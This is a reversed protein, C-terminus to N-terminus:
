GEVVTSTPYLLKDRHISSAFNPKELVTRRCDFELDSTMRRICALCSFTSGDAQRPSAPAACARGEPFHECPSSFPPHVSFVRSGDPSAARHAAEAESRREARTMGAPTATPTELFSFDASHELWRRLEVRDVAGGAARKLTAVPLLGLTQFHDYHTQSM